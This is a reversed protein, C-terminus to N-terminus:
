HVDRFMTPAVTYTVVISEHPELEEIKERLEEIDKELGVLSSMYVSEMPDTQPDLARMSNPTTLLQALSALLTVTSTCM